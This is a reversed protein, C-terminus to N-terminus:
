RPAITENRILAAEFMRASREWSSDRVTQAAGESLRAWEDDSMRLIDVMGDALGQVDDVDALAGNMGTVIAEEPWGTRTSVVPTRCAMAEMAMLNFGESKSCTLWVDCSAYIDRLTDQAPEVLMEIGDLRDRYKAPAVSGFTVVELDPIAERVKAIVALSIDFGKFPTESFLTGIRPRANKRRPPAFFRDTDVANPVVTCGEKNGDGEIAKVLWQAVVIKQMATRYTAVVRERPLWDFVEHHQVFYVKRGKARSMPEVYEATEWWTAIIVDADPVDRERVPRRMRLTKQRIGKGDLHSPNQVRAAFQPLGFKRLLRSLLGKSAHPPAVVLVDHGFEQLYKAYIAVVKTGGNMNPPPSVFTIKM